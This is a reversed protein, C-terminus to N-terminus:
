FAFSLEVTTGNQYDGGGIEDGQDGDDDMAYTVLVSAGGGLDYTGGVHYDTDEENNNEAGGFVSLGNGVDYSGEVAWKSVGQDDQLDLSAAIPGDAYAINLGLNDDDGAAGDEAVYYATATVPGFPYAVKIGTSNHEAGDLEWDVYALTITAGAVAATGSVGLVGQQTFDGNGDVYDTEEQYALSASFMGFDAGAGISLQQLDDSGASASDDVLYSVSADVGGFMVDGRLVASNSGTSVGDAEMDGASVWHKEAARSTDGYFLGASESTLSLVFDSSALDQGGDNSQTADDGAVTIEFYAGAEVGNDLAATATTKLNGEWYFGNEDDNTVTAPDGGDNYGLTASMSNSISTHGGAAAAGAFAVIATTTLLISKM